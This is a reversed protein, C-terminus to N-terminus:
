GDCNDVPFQSHKHKLRIDNFKISLVNTFLMFILSFYLFIKMENMKKLSGFKKM